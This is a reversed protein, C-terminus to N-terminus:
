IKIKATKRDSNELAADDHHHVSEILSYFKYHLNYMDAGCGLIDVFIFLSNSLM